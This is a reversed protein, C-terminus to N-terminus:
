KVWASETLSVSDGQSSPLALQLNRQGCVLLNPDSLLGDQTGLVIALPSSLVWFCLAGLPYIKQWMVGVNSGAICAHIDIGM